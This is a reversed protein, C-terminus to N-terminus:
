VPRTLRGEGEFGKVTPTMCVCCGPARSWPELPLSTGEYTIFTVIHRWQPACTSSEFEFRVGNVTWYSGDSVVMGSARFYEDVGGGDGAPPLNAGLSKLITPTWEVDVAAARAVLAGCVAAALKLNRMSGSRRAEM